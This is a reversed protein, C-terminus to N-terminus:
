QSFELKYRSRVLEELEKNVSTLDLNADFEKVLVWQGGLNEFFYFRSEKTRVDGDPLREGVEKRYYATWEKGDEGYLIQVYNRELKSWDVYFYGVLKLSVSRGNLTVTINNTEAEQGTLDPLAPKEVQAQAYIATFLICSLVLASFLRSHKM